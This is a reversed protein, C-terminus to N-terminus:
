VIGQETNPIVGDIEFFEKKWERITKDCKGVMMGALEAAKTEALGLHKTLQFCLFLGLSM